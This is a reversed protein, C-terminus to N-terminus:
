TAAGEYVIDILLTSGEAYKKFAANDLFNISYIFGRDELDIEYIGTEGLVIPYDGGNLVFTTGPEGQIGLQTIQSFDNFITGEKLKKATTNTTQANTGCYRFQTMRKM